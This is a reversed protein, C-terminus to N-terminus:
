PPGVPEPCVGLRRDLRRLGGERRRARGRESRALRLRPREHQVVLARARHARRARLAQQRVLRRLADVRRSQAGPSSTNFGPTSFRGLKRGQRDLSYVNFDLSAWFTRGDRTMAPATWVSNGAQFVWRQTGDPNIAYAGGGTNGAYIVGGFGTVANGEWWNVLQGTAPRRPRGIPGSSGAGARSPRESRHAAPVAARRGLRRDAPQERLRRDYRGLTAASDIIEGTKLRWRLRGDRGVAYLYTDASGVYVTGDADISPRRSSARAPRSPGRGSGAGSARASRAARPTAGTAACRPGRRAPRCPSTTGTATPGPARRRRASRRRPPCPARQWPSRAAACAESRGGEFRGTPGRRQRSGHLDGFRLVRVGAVHADGILHEALSRDLDDGAAPRGTVDLERPTAGPGGSSRAYPWRRARRSRRGARCRHRRDRRRAARRELLVGLVEAGHDVRAAELAGRQRSAGLAPPHARQEGGAVGLPHGLEHEGTDGRVAGGDQRRIPELTM